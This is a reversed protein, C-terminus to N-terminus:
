DMSREGRLILVMGILVLCYGILQFGGLLDHLRSPRLWTVWVTVLIVFAGALVIGVGVPSAIVM